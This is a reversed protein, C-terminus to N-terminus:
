RKRIYALIELGSKGKLVIDVLALDISDDLLNVADDYDVAEVIQFGAHELAKRYICRVVSQDEVLLIKGQDRKAQEGGTVM